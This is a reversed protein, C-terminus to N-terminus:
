VWGRRAAEVGLQFRNEAGVDNMLQQSRRRLSRVSIGLRGAIAEDTAGAGILALISRQEATPPAGRSGAAAAPSEAMRPPGVGSTALPLSREWYFEFLQHLAAVLPEAETVLSDSRVGDQRLSVLAIRGDAIALKLPLSPAIRAQEGQEALRATEDWSGERDFSDTTYVARWSVGRAMVFTELPEQPSSVYPPRDFVLLEKQAQHQLRVFWQAVEGSDTVVRTLTDGGTRAVGREFQEALLPIQDQLRRAQEGVRNLVAGLAFRPDVASWADQEGGARALLGQDRLAELHVVAEDEAIEFRDVVDAPRTPGRHVVFLYVQETAEPLGAVSLLSPDRAM